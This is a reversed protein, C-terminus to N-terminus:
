YYEKINIFLAKKNSLHYNADMRNYVLKRNAKNQHLQEILEPKRWSTWVFHAGTQEDDENPCDETIFHQRKQKHWWSRRKIIQQVSPHNNGLGVYFRFFSSGAEPKANKNEQNIVRNLKQM